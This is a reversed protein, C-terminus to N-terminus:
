RELLLDDHSCVAATLESHTASPTDIEGMKGCSFSTPDGRHVITENYLQLQPLSPQWSSFHLTRIIKPALSAVKEPTKAAGM